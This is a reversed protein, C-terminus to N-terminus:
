QRCPPLLALTGCIAVNDIELVAHLMRYGAMFHVVFTGISSIHKRALSM